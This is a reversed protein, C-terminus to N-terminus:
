KPSSGRRFWEADIAVDKAKELLEKDNTLLKAKRLRAYHVYAADYATLGLQESLASIHKLDEPEVRIITLYKALKSVATVVQELNRIRGRRAEIVAANVVEYLTLDLVAIGEELLQKISETLCKRISKAIPYLASADLIIM